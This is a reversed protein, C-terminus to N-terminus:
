NRQNTSKSWGSLEVTSDTSVHYPIIRLMSLGQITSAILQVSWKHPQFDVRYSSWLNELDPVMDV